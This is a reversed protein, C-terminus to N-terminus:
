QTPVSYDRERAAATQTEVVRPARPSDEVREASEVLETPHAVAIPSLRSFRVRKVTM